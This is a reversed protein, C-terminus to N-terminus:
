HNFSFLCCHKFIRKWTRSFIAFLLNFLVMKLTSLIIRKCMNKTKLGCRFKKNHTENKRNPTPACRCNWLKGQLPLITIAGPTLGPDLPKWLFFRQVRQQNHSGCRKQLAINVPQKTNKIKSKTQDFLLLFDLSRNSGSLAANM